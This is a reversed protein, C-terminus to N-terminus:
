GAKFLIDVEKADCKFRAWLYETFRGIVVEDAELDAAYDCLVDAMETPTQVNEFKVEKPPMKGSQKQVLERRQM